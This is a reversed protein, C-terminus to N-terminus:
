LLGTYRLGHLIGDEDVPKTVYNAVAKAEERGDGMAVGTGVFQLMELDNLADGFAYSQEQPIFLYDLVQKIGRAKSGGGPLIDVSYPHWRIYDFHNHGQVYMEEEEEQCFLLAQYIKRQHYEDKKVPPYPLKLGGLSEAIYHDDARNAVAGNHDLFVMSHNAKEAAKELRILENTTLPVDHIVKGEVVVYSGNFSVYSEIGLEERLEKFMFPARGTAIAVYVGKEQLSFIAEKTSQPLEKEENLLTGDIDFFVIPKNKEMKKEGSEIEREGKLSVELWKRSCILIPECMSLM